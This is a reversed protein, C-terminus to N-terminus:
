SPDSNEASMASNNTSRQIASSMDAESTAPGRAVDPLGTLAMGSNKVSGTGMGTPASILRTVNPVSSNM